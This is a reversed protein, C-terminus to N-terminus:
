RNGGFGHPLLEQLEYTRYDEKDKAVIIKFDGTCFEQMVQRCIGCPFAYESFDAVAGNDETPGGVIAIAKFERYGESVAKFFATREGCNTAGFSANEINCGTFIEGEKTLLAAGVHYGSYPAYASKAAQIAKGILIKEQNMNRGDRETDWLPCIIEMKHDYIQRGGEDPKRRHPEEKVPPVVVAPYRYYLIDFKFRFM